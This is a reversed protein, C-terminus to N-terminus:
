RGEKLIAPVAQLGDWKGQLSNIQKQALDARGCWTLCHWVEFASAALDAKVRAVRGDHKKQIYGARDPNAEAFTAWEARERDTTYPSSAHAHAGAACAMFYDWNEGDQQRQKADNATALEREFIRRGIVAHTYTRNETTRKFIDGNPATATYTKKPM